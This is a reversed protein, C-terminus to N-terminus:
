RMFDNKRLRSPDLEIARDYDEIARHDEGLRNYTNGRNFYVIADSPDLEIARDFDEIARRHEGLDFYANGRNNYADLYNPDLDIAKDYQQIALGHEGSEQYDLGRNYYVEASDGGCATSLLLTACLLAYALLLTSKM